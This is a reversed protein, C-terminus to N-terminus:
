ARYRAMGPTSLITEDSLIVMAAYDPLRACWDAGAPGMAYAATAYADASAVDPGVVTVSLVGRPPQGSHPDVIHAGREYGGSTAIGAADAILVAAVRDRIRPHQIGVRWPTGEWSSGAVQVDGGANVCYNRAGGDQLLRAAGAISWGKVLGSPDLEGGHRADFYGGTQERLRECRRLVSAVAPHADGLALEGRHLRCIESDQRYTSFTADVFRLWAYVADVVSDDVEPDCADVTIPMGMV